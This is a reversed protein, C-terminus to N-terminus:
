PRDTKGAIQVPVSPLVVRSVFRVAAHQGCNARLIQRDAKARRVGCAKSQLSQDIAAVVFCVEEPPTRESANKRIRRGFQMGPLRRGCVSQLAADPTLPTPCGLWPSASADSKGSIMKRGNKVGNRLAVGRLGSRISARGWSRRVLLRKAAIGACQYLPTLEKAKGAIDGQERLKTIVGGLKANLDGASRPLADKEWLGVVLWDAAVESLPSSQLTLRM